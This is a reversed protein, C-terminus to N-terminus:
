PIKSPDPKAGSWWSVASVLVTDNSQLEIRVVKSNATVVHEKSWVFATPESIRFLGLGLDVRQSDALVLAARMMVRKGGRGKPYEGERVQAVGSQGASAASDVFAQLLLLPGSSHITDPAIIVYPTDTITVPRKTLSADGLCGGLSIAM